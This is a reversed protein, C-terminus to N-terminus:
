SAAMFYGQGRVSTIYRPQKADDNLKFRLRSIVVDVSRGDGNARGQIVQTLEQRSVVEGANQVLADLLAFEATTLHLPKAGLHVDRRSLDFQLSGIRVKKNKRGKPKVHSDTSETHRLLAKVTALVLRSSALKDMCISAGSELCEVRWTEAKTPFLLIIPGSFKRRVQMCALVTVTGQREAGIIAVAVPEAAITQALGKPSAAMSARIEPDKSLYSALSQAYAHDPDWIVVLKQLVDL